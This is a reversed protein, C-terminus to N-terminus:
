SLLKQEKLWAIFDATPKLTGSEDPADRTCEGQLVASSDVMLLGVLAYLTRRM